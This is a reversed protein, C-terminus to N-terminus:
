RNWVCRLQGNVNGIDARRGCQDINLSSRITYGQNNTCTAHLVNGTVRENSCSQLYSGPPLQNQGYGNRSRDDNDNDRDGRRGYGGNYGYPNGGSCGLYGNINAIDAGSNLCQRIDISSNVYQGGPRTCAASLTNGRITANVCSQQYSGPPLNGYGYRYQASGTALSAIFLAATLATGTAIRM